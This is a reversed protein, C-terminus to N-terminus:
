PHGTPHSLPALEAVAKAAQALATTARVCEAIRLVIEPDTVQGDTFATGTVYVFRPVIVCRFDLMLSNALSMISMYSAHGGAACIFGAVKNEWEKGTLEIFNKAVANADYNYVPTAVLIASASAVLARGRAVNADAFSEASGCLPFPLERLDLLTVATGAARAAREAERALILTKPNSGLSTSVILLSMPGPGPIQVVAVRPLAM